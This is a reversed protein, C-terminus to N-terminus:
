SNKKLKEIFFEHAAISAALSLDQLPGRGGWDAGEMIYLNKLTGELHEITTKGHGFRKELATLEDTYLETYKQEEWETM